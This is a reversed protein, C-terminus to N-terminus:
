HGWSDKKEWFLYIKTQFLLGCVKILHALKELSAEMVKRPYLRTKGYPMRAFFYKVFRPQKHRIFAERVRDLDEGSLNHLKDLVYKTSGLLQTNFGLKELVATIALAQKTPPQEATKQMGVKEAFSNYKAKVIDIEM